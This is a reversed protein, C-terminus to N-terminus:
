YNIGTKSLGYGVYKLHFELNGHPNVKMQTTKFIQMVFRGSLLNM